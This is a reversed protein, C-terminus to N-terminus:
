INKRRNNKGDRYGEKYVENLDIPFMKAIGAMVLIGIVLGFGFM